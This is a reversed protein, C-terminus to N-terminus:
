GSAGFWHEFLRWAAPRADRETRALGVSWLDHLVHPPLTQGEGRLVRRFAGERHPVELWAGLAGRVPAFAGRGAWVDGLVEDLSRGSTSVAHVIMGCLLPHGGVVDIIRRIDSASLPHFRSMEALHSAEFSGLVLPGEPWTLDNLWDTRPHIGFSMVVRLPCLTERPPDLTASWLARWAARAEERSLLTGAGELVLVLRAPAAPIVIDHLVASMRAELSAHRRWVEDIARLPAGVTEALHVAFLNAVADASSVLRPTLTRGRIWAVACPPENERAKTLV